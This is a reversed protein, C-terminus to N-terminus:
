AKKESSRRQHDVGDQSCSPGPRQFPRDFVRHQHEAFSSPTAPPGAIMARSRGVPRFASLPSASGAHGETSQVRAKPNGLAPINRKGPAACTPRNCTRSMPRGGPKDSSAPPRAPTASAPTPSRGNAPAGAPNGCPSRRGRGSRRPSGSNRRRPRGTTELMPACRPPSQGRQGAWNADVGDGGGAADLRYMQRQRLIRIAPGARFGSQDDAFRGAAVGSQRYAAAEPPRRSRGREHFPQQALRGRHQGGRGMRTSASPSLM